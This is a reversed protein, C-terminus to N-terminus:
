FFSFSLDTWLFLLFDGLNRIDLSDANLILDELFKGYM